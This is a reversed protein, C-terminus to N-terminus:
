PGDLVDAAPTRRGCGPCFSWDSHIEDGCECYARHSTKEGCNPCYVDDGHLRTGCSGCTEGNTGPAAGSEHTMRTKREDTQSSSDVETEVAPDVREMAPGELAVTVNVEPAAPRSGSNGIQSDDLRASILEDVRESLASDVTGEPTADDPLVTDEFYTRLANRMVESKSGDFEELREILNEDARFTIKGM